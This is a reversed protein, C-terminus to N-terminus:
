DSQKFTAPHVTNEDSGDAQIEVTTKSEVCKKIRKNLLFDDVMYGISANIAVLALPSIVWYEDEKRTAEIIATGLVGSVTWDRTNKFQDHFTRVEFECIQRQTLNQKELASLDHYQPM